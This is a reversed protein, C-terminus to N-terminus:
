SINIMCNYKSVVLIRVKKVMESESNGKKTLVDVKKKIWVYIWLHVYGIFDMIFDMFDMIFDMFYVVFDM